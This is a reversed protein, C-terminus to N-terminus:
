RDREEAVEGNEPIASVIGISEKLGNIRYPARRLSSLM